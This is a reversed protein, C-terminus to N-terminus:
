NWDTCPIYQLVSNDLNVHVAKATKRLIETRRSFNKSLIVGIRLIKQLDKSFLDDYRPVEGLVFANDGLKVCELTGAYRNHNPKSM